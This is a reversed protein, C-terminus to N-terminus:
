GAMKRDQPLSNIRQRCYQQADLLTPVILPALAPDQAVLERRVAESLHCLVLSIGKRNMKRGFRALLEAAHGPVHQLYSCDVWISVKGSRSARSLAHLLAQDADTAPAVDDVLILLYSEPLIERYVEM